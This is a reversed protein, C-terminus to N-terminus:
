SVGSHHFSVTGGRLRLYSPLPGRLNGWDTPTRWDKQLEETWHSGKSSGGTRQLLGKLPGLTISFGKRVTRKGRVSEGAYLPDYYIEGRSLTYISVFFLGLILASM